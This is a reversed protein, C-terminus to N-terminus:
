PTVEFTGEGAPHGNLKLEFRFRGPPAGQRWGVWFWLNGSPGGTGVAERVTASRRTLEQGDKFWIGELRDDPRLGRFPFFAYIRRTGEPFRTAAGVPRGQEVATAFTIPGLTAEGPASTAGPAPAGTAEPAPSEPAPAPPPPAAAPPPPAGGEAEIQFAATHALREAIYLDVRYAGPPWGRTPRSLSFIGRTTQAGTTLTAEDITDDAPAAATKVAVWVSRIAVGPPVDALTFVAYIKPTDPTFTTRPSPNDPDDTLVVSTFRPQGPTAQGQPVGGGDGRCAVLAGMTLGLILARGIARRM